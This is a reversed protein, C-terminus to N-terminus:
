QATKAIVQVIMQWADRRERRLENVLYITFDIFFLTVEGIVKGLFVKNCETFIETINGEHYFILM